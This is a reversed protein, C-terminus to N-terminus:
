ATCVEEMIQLAYSLLVPCSSAIAFGMRIQLEQWMKQCAAIQEQSPTEGELHVIIVRDPRLREYYLDAHGNRFVVVTPESGKHEM